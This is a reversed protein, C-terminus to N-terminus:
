GRVARQDTRGLHNTDEHVPVRPADLWLKELEYYRRTEEQFVHVVMDDYDMLVWRGHSRGEVGLPRLGLRSLGDEVHDVVAGVQQASVGSCIVFFAAFTVLGRLDLVQVDLAKKDLALRAAALAKDQSTLVM